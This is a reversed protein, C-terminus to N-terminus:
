HNLGKAMNKSKVAVQNRLYNITVDQASVIKGHGIAQKALKLLAVSDPLLESDILINQTGIFKQQWIEKGVIWGHGAGCAPLNTVEVQDLKDLKEVGNLVALGTDDKEYIAWYVEGMRADLAVLGDALAHKDLCAQALVALTSLPVLPIDLAIAIGQATSTAIRIGTFAGPGNAFACHTIATKPLGSAKLVTDMMQPLLKTHQRPAVTFESFIEGDERLLAASCAETSTDIGLINM